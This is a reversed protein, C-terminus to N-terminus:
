RAAYRAELGDFFDKGVLRQREAFSLVRPDGPEIRGERRLAELAQRAGLLAGQLAVNAYLVAGYGMAKLDDHPVIPTRGGVVMNVVQPVPLLSPLRRIEDLTSVAEVFVVDAGAEAFAAARDVAAEFGDTSRADTRAVVLLDEGTRADVAARIKDVAEEKSIVGKGEFHGCRKPSVQDEIQVADAGARELARVTRRVNIANGFGTDADVIVPVDVVDRIAATQEVLESLTLLGLDPTGLHMNTVGAGTLYVAEFGLDAILRGALASFAGPVLLARREELLARLKAGHNTM